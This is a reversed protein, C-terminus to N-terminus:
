STSLTASTSETITGSGQSDGRTAGAGASAQPLAAARAAAMGAGAEDIAAVAEHISLNRALATTVLGDMTKDQFSLWWAGNASRAPASTAFTAATDASPATYETTVCASLALTLPLITLYRGLRPRFQTSSM